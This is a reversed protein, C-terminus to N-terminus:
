VAANEERKREMVLEELWRQIRAEEDEDLTVADTEVGDPATGGSEAVVREVTEEWNANQAIAGITSMVIWDIMTAPKDFVQVEFRLRDGRPEFLFRVAGALPHGDLTVLTIRHHARDMEVVRVQIHGRVPLSMTLTEGPSLSTPTGPEAAVELPLLEGFREVFRDYLAEATLLPRAIDARFRKQKLRGIGEDPLAEPQADALRRLGEDLGTPREGLLLELANLGGPPITNGERIMTLQDANLPTEVGFMGAIKTGLSALFEPVPVRVPTRDTIASFRKILDSQSTVEPGAVDLARGAVDDREVAAALARGLDEHWVPSFEQDGGGLLPVAPLVRVMKLVLSVEGDGPGYVSGPRVIVWSGQFGRVIAEARHKSVHYASEGRDAGLSSVYVFRRVGASEAASVVHRTGEVNVREFTVTPPAEDVIGAVHLVADCGAVARRLADASSVDGPHAEVRGQWQRVDRRAHRSFLRVAHGRELLATVAAPGVVGTGGTVLVKM